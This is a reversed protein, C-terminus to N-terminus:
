AASKIKRRRSAALGMLGMGFVALMGPESVPKVADYSIDASHVIVLRYENAAQLAQTTDSFSGAFLYDDTGESALGIGTNIAGPTFNYINAGATGHGGDVDIIDITFGISASVDNEDQHLIADLFADADFDFTITDAANMAFTFETITGVESAGTGIDTVSTQGEAFADATVQNASGPTGDLGTILAGLLQTDSRAFSGNVPPLQQTFDDEWGPNCGTGVCAMNDDANGGGATADVTQNGAIGNNASLAFTSSNDGIVLNSFDLADYQVGQSNEIIFNDINLHALAKAGANAQGSFATAFAVSTILALAKKNFKKM